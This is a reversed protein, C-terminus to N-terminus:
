VELKKGLFKDLADYHSRYKKSFYVYFSLENPVRKEFM